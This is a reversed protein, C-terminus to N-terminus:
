SKLTASLVVPDINDIPSLKKFYGATPNKNEFSKVNKNNLVKSAQNEHQKQGIAELQLVAKQIQIEIEDFGEMSPNKECIISLCRDFSNAQLGLEQFTKKDLQKESNKVLIENRLLDFKEPPLHRKLTKLIPVIKNYFFSNKISAAQKIFEEDSQDNFQHSINEDLRFELDEDKKENTSYALRELLFDIKVWTPLNNTEKIAERKKLNKIAIQLNQLLSFNDQSNQTQESAAINDMNKQELQVEVAARKSLKSQEDPSVNKTASIVDDKETTDNNKTKFIGGAIALKAFKQELESSAQNNNLTVSNVKPSKLRDKNLDDKNIVLFPQINEQKATQKHQLVEEKKQKTAPSITPVPNKVPELNAKDKAINENNKAVIEQRNEQKKAQNLRAPVLAPKLDNQEARYKALMEDLIESEEKTLKEKKSLKFIAFKLAYKREIDSVEQVIESIEERKKQIKALMEDLIESEEKTLIRKESLKKIVFELAYKREIDSVEQVIKNIEEQQKIPRQFQVTHKLM